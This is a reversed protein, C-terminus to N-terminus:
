RLVYVFIGIGGMALNGWWLIGVIRYVGHCFRHAVLVGGWIGMFLGMGWYGRRPSGFGTLAGGPRESGALKYMNRNITCHQFDIEILGQPSSLSNRCICLVFAM